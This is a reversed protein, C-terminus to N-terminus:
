QWVFNPHAEHHDFYWRMMELADSLNWTFKAETEFGQDSTWVQVIESPGKPNTAQVWNCDSDVVQVHYVGNGGHVAMADHDGVNAELCLCLIPKEFNDMTRLEHELVDWSPELITETTYPQHDRTYRVVDVSGIM